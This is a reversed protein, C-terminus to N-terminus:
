EASSDSSVEFGQSHASVWSWERSSPSNRHSRWVLEIGDEVIPSTAHEDVLLVLDLWTWLGEALNDVGGQDHSDAFLQVSALQQILKLSLPQILDTLLQLPVM